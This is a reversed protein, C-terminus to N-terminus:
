KKPVRTHTIAVCSRKFDPSIQIETVDQNPFQYNTGRYDMQPVYAYDTVTEGAEPTHGSVFPNNLNKSRDEAVLRNAYRGSPNVYILDHRYFSDNANLSPVQFFVPDTIPNPDVSLISWVSYGLASEEFRVRSYNSTQFIKVCILDQLIDDSFKKRDYDSAIIYTLFDLASNIAEKFDENFTYYSSGTADLEQLCSNILSQVSIM